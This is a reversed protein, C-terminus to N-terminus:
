SNSWIRVILYLSSLSRQTFTYPTCFIRLSPILLCWIRLGMPSQCLRGRTRICINGSNLSILLWLEKRRVFSHGRLGSWHLFRKGVSALGEAGTRMLALTEPWQMNTVVGVSQACDVCDWSKWYAHMHTQGKKIEENGLWTLRVLWSSHPTILDWVKFDRNEKGSQVKSPEPTLMVIIGANLLYDSSFWFSLTM